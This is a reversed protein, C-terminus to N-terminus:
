KNSPTLNRSELRAVLLDNGARKFFAVAEEADNDAEPSGIGLAFDMQCLALDLPVQLARWDEIVKRYLEIARSRDGGIAELGATVTGRRATVLASRASHDNLKQLAYAMWTKEKTALAGHAVLCYFDTSCALPLGDM